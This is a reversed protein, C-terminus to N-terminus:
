YYYRKYRGEGFLLWNKHFSFLFSACVSCFFIIDFHVL